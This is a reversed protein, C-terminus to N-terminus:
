LGAINLINYESEMKRIKEIVIDPNPLSQIEIEM